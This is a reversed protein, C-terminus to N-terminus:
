GGDDRPRQAVPRQHQDGRQQEDDHAHARRELERDVGDGVDGVDLDLDDGGGRRQRGDLDLLVDANGTSRAIDPKGFVV